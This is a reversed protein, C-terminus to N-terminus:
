TGINHIETRPGHRRTRQRRLIGPASNGVQDITRKRGVPVVNGPAGGRIARRAAAENQAVDQAVQTSQTAQQRARQGIDQMRQTARAALERNRAQRSPVPVVTPDLRMVGSEPTLYGGGGAPGPPPLAPTPKPVPVIPPGPAPKPWPKPRPIPTPYPPPPHTFPYPAPRPTPLPKPKPEPTPKPKPPPGAPPPMPPPGWQMVGSVPTLNGDGGAKGPKPLPPYRFIEAISQGTHRSQETIGVPVHPQPPNIVTTSHHQHIVQQQPTAVRQRAMEEVIDAALNEHSTKVAHRQLAGDVEAAIRTYDINADTNPPPMPPHPPPRQINEILWQLDDRPVRAEVSVSHLHNEFTQQELVRRQEAELGSSLTAQYRQFLPSNIIDRAFRQMPVSLIGQQSNADKIALDLVEEYHPKRVLGNLTKM